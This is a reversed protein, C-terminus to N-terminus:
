QLELAKTLNKEQRKKAQIPNQIEFFLTSHYIVLNSINSDVYTILIKDITEEIKM